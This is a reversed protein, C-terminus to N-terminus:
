TAHGSRASCRAAPAQRSIAVRFTKTTKQKGFKLLTHLLSMHALANRHTFVYFPVPRPKTCSTCPREKWPCSLLSCQMGDSHLTRRQCLDPTACDSIHRPYARRPEREHTEASTRVKISQPQTHAVPGSRVM